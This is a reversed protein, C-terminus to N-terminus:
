WGLTLTARVVQGEALPRFWRCYGRAGTDYYHGQYFAEAAGCCVGLGCYVSHLAANVTIRKPPNSGASASGVGLGMLLVLALAALGLRLHSRHHNM